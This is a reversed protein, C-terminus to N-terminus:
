GWNENWCKSIMGEGKTHPNLEGLRVLGGHCWRVDGTRVDGVVGVEAAAVGVPDVAPVRSAACPSEATV